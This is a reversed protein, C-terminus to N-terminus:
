ALESIGALAHVSAATHLALSNRTGSPKVVVLRGAKEWRIVTPISVGYLDATEQRTYLLRRPSRRRQEQESIKPM